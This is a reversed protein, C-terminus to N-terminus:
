RAEVATVESTLHGAHLRVVLTEGVLADTASTLARGGLEALAYGRALTRVPSLADLTERTGRVQEKALGLRHRMVDALDERGCRVSARAVGVMEEVMGVAALRYDRVRRRLDEVDPAIIEAASSPTPARADAVLDALTWNTEHGVASVVPVRSAFIARAVVETNFAALDESSGGGRGVVVVDVERGHEDRWGSLLRLAAAVQSPAAEGQVATPVFVVEALPYRRGLVVLVDHIVAGGDSTVVGILRPMGPLPRKRGEDFLGEEELARYLAELQMQALGMGEPFLNDVVLSLEGRPKYLRMAGHAVMSQGSQPETRVRAASGRFLVCRMQCAADKLGFYWHGAASRSANCVEGHLWVSGLLPDAQLLDALYGNLETVSLLREAYRSGVPAVDDRLTSWTM